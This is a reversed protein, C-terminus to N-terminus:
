WRAAALLLGSRRPRGPGRRGGSWPWCPPWGSGPRWRARRGRRGRRAPTSSAARACGSCPWPSRPSRRGPGAPVAAAPLAAAAALVACGGVLGALYGRALGARAALEAPPLLDPGDDAAALEAADVPCSRAPCGPLGCRPARCCRAPPWRSRASGSRRPRRRSPGAAAVALAASGSRCRRSWCRRGAGAGRGAARAPGRGRRRRGGRRGAAAAGARGGRAPGGLRGGRGARDPWRPPPRRPCTTCSPATAAPPRPSDTPHPEAPRPTGARATGAATRHGTRDTRGTRGPGDPGRPGVADAPRDRAPDPRRALWAACAVAVAAALAAILPRVAGVAGAPRAGPRDSCRSAPWGRRDALRGAGDGGRRRAAAGRGVPVAPRRGAARGRHRGARGGSRRVGAAAPRATRPSGCCSATWCASSACPAAPPLPGGALRPCGGRGRGAGSCRSASWSWCWRCWSPSRCTPRCRSTSGPARRSCPSGATRPDTPPSPCPSEAGAAQPCSRRFPGPVDTRTGLMGPVFCSLALDAATATRGFEHRGLSSRHAARQGTSTCPRPSGVAAPGAGRRGPPSSTTSGGGSGSRLTGAPTSARSSGATISSPDTPNMATSPGRLGVDHSNPPM